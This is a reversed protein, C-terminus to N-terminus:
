NSPPLWLEVKFHPLTLADVYADGLCRRAFHTPNNSHSRRRMNGHKRSAEGSDHGLYSNVSLNLQFM